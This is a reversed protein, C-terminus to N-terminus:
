PSSVLALREELKAEKGTGRHAEGVSILAYKFMPPGVQMCVVFVKLMVPSECLYQVVQTRIRGLEM